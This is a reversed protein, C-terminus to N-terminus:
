KVKRRRNVLGELAPLKVSSSRMVKKLDKSLHPEPSERLKKESVLRLIRNLSEGLKSKNEKSLTANNM